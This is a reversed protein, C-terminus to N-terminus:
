SFSAAQYGGPISMYMYVHNCHMMCTCYMYMCPPMLFFWGYLTGVKLRFLHEERMIEGIERHADPHKVLRKKVKRQQKHLYRLERCITGACVLVVTNCMNLYM